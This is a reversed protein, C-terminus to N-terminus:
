TSPAASHECTSYLHWLLVLLSLMIIHSGIENFLLKCPLASLFILLLLIAISSIIMVVAVVAAVVVAVVMVVVAVVVVVVMMM